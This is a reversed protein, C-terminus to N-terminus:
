KSNLAQSSYDASLELILPKTKTGIIWLFYALAFRLNDLIPYITTHALSFLDTASARILVPAFPMTCNFLTHTM